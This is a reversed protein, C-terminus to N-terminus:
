FGLMIGFSLNKLGKQDPSDAFMDNMYYKAFVGWL